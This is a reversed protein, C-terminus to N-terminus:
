IYIKKMQFPAVEKVDLWEFKKMMVDTVIKEMQHLYIIKKVFEM